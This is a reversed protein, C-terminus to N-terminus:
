TFGQYHQFNTECYFACFTLFFLDSANYYFSLGTLFSQQTGSDEFQLIMNENSTPSLWGFSSKVVSDDTVYNETKTTQKKKFWKLIKLLM